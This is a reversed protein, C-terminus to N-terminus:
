ESSFASCLRINALQPRRGHRCALCHSQAGDPTEASVRQDSTGFEEPYRYFVHEGERASCRPCSKWTRGERYQSAALLKRCHTCRSRTSPRELERWRDPDLLASDFPVEGPDALTLRERAIRLDFLRRGAQEFVIECRREGDCFAVVGLGWEPRTRHRVFDGARLMATM